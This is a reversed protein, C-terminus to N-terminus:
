MVGRKKMERYASVGYRIAPFFRELKQVLPPVLGMRHALSHRPAVPRKGNTTQDQRSAPRRLLNLGQTAMGLGTQLRGWQTLIERLGAVTADYSSAGQQLIKGTAALETQIRTLHPLSEEYLRKGTMTLLMGKHSLSQSRKIAYDIAGNKLRFVAVILSIIAICQGIVVAFVLVDWITM